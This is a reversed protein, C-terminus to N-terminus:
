KPNGAKYARIEQRMSEVPRSRASMCIHLLYIHDLHWNSQAYACVQSEAYKTLAARVHPKEIENRHM